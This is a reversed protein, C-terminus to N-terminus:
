FGCQAPRSNQWDRIARDPVKQFNLGNPPCYEDKGGEYFTFYSFMLVNSNIQRNSAAGNIM